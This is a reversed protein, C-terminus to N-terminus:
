YITLNFDSNISVADTLRQTNVLITNRGPPVTYARAAVNERTPTVQWYRDEIEFGFTILYFGDGHQQCDVSSGDFTWQKGCRDAFGDAYVLAKVAGNMNIEQNINGDVQINGGVELNGSLYANRWRYTETGIDNINTLAPMLTDAIKLPMNDSTGKSPGRWMMGDVRVDDAFTVPVDGESANVISGNFYTVGGEGGTGGIHVSPVYLPENYTVQAPQLVEADSASANDSIALVSFFMLLSLVPLLYLKKM